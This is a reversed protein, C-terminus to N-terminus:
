LGTNDKLWKETRILDAETHVDFCDKIIIPKVKRGMFTWPKFGINKRISQNVNLIWFNHSLYYNDSLEQRNTSIEADEFDFYPILFGYEDIKKARFPHHDQEKYAPVVASITPDTKIQEIGAKIWEAKITASNALLVVLIDIQQNEHSEIYELAHLIADIHKAKPGSIAQPRIIPKYGLNKVAERIRICDSSVYLKGKDIVKSAAKAPYACLPQGMVHIINKDPLSNNGRGTLLAYANM